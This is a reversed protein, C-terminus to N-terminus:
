LNGDAFREELESMTEEASGFVAAVVSTAVAESYGRRDLDKLALDADNHERAVKFAENINLIISAIM